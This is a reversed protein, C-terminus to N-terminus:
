GLKDLQARVEALKATKEALRQKEQAVVAPPARDVFSANGLKAQSSGIEGELRQAEKSLRQREADRDIEVHLMVKGVGTVAVPADAAPLKDLVTVESCRALAALYPMLPEFRARDGEVM